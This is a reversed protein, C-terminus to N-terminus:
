TGDNSMFDKGWLVKMLDATFDFERRVLEHGLGPDQAWINYMYFVM